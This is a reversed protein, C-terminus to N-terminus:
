EGKGDNNSNNNIKYEGVPKDPNIELYRSLEIRAEMPTIIGEKILNALGTSVIHLAQSEAKKDKQLCSIHTYDIKIFIGDPCLAFTLAEAILESDPIILDEYAAKKATEQNTYTSDSIFINPNLGIANAIKNTCRVDEEHLKLQSSDYNLPIWGIKAKTVLISYLKNVLGYKSKFSDELKKQEIPNLEANAFQSNENNYIIGKPGGNVILTHSAIAQAIWNSVPVSLEDTSSRFTIDVGQGQFIAESDYILFFDTNLKLDLQEGNDLDIYTKQVIGKIDTQAYRKGSSVLHFKEPPIIWISKPLSSPLGRNTYIPCYGFLKLCMEVQKFFQRGTQLPNPKKLLTRIDDHQKAENGDKDAIYFRGNSFLSGTKGISTALPTCISLALAKDEALKMDFSTKDNLREKLLVGGDSILGRLYWNNGATDKEYKNVYGRMSFIRSIIGPM